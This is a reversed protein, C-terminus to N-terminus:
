SVTEIDNTYRSMLEGHTHTDFYKLPLKQMRDFLDTRIKAVTNQAGHVMVRASGPSCGAGVIYALARVGLMKALGPCDGRRIYDNILPKILFSGGVTCASSVVLLVAVLVLHLKYRGLYKMLKKLTDRMNKPKQFGGRPPGGPGGHGHKAM